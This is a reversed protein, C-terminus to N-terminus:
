ADTRAEEWLAVDRWEEGTVAKATVGEGRPLTNNM